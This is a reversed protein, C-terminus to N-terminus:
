NGSTLDQVYVQLLIHSLNLMSAHLPQLAPDSPQYQLSNHCNFCNDQGIDTQTFTEIVPNSLVTSGLLITQFTNSVKDPVSKDSHSWIAGIEEYPKAIDGDPLVSAASANISAIVGQNAKDGPMLSGSQYNQCAQTTLAFLQTADDVKQVPVQTQNCDALTTNAAYFPTGTPSVSDIPQIGPEGSATQPVVPAIDTPSFTAWIAESHENVWGVVHLGVLAVEVTEFEPDTPVTITPVGNVKVTEVKPIMAQRSYAGPVQFTDDVIAWAAKYEIDGIEFRANPSEEQLGKATFWNDDHIQKYMEPNVYQSYYVARNNQAVLIGATGAQAVSDIPHDTKGPRLKLMVAVDTPNPGQYSQDIVQELTPFSEFRPAGNEEEMSWLFANWSWQHFDCLGNFSSNEALNKPDPIGDTIWSEPIDCAGQRANNLANKIVSIVDDRQDRGAAKELATVAAPGGIEGLAQAARTRVLADHNGLYLAVFEDKPLTPAANPHDASYAVMEDHRKELARRYLEASAPAAGAQLSGILLPTLQEGYELVQELQGEECEECELWLVLAQRMRNSDEPSIQTTGPDPDPPVPDIPQPAPKESCAALLLSTMAVILILTTGTRYTSSIQM